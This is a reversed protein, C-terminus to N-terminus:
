SVKCYMFYKYGLPNSFFGSVNSSLMYIDTYFYIPTLCGTEMLMDEAKHMLKYRTTEDTCSKIQSLLPDYTQAWTGNEVKLDVGIDTCDISYAAVDANAGKGFQVDNNGSNTTWMDLFSIPDNFDALWGNRAITYDGNKRTDLFTNWEQNELSMDCGVSGFIGQINEAIAKHGESTNYLYVMSPMDTFKGSAEDYTYYKKLTEIASNWNDQYADASVNYYGPYGSNNGANQYFQSGDADTLGMAVFSSAPVQGGQAINEVIYNRDIILAMARRIEAEAKAKDAGTLTSGAPLLETNINWCVYYTGLQGTVTYENPYKTKLNAMENTPVDDILQWSGNEFNTLMNNADDSLYFNIKDMTIKDADVYNANKEITIVSNHEWGTMKYAGNSVYTSPDTAWSENSVVDERVPYYSPFALLENWYSIANNLTVELTKDDKATVALKANPDVLNGADDEAWMDEYGKVIELMYCYDAALAPSAARNWAFVFDNATVDKGDSWKAGDRLTYTYTVSGDPNEVGEPLETALDPVIEISGSSSMDWKALGSFLHACLTAGDVASNLAPDLTAPESALCVSIEQAGGSSGGSSTSGGSSATGGCGTALMACALGTAIVKENKM